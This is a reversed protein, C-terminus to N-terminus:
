KGVARQPQDDLPVFMLVLDRILSKWGNEYRQYNCTNRLIRSIRLLYNEYPTGCDSFFRIAQRLAPLVAQSRPDRRSVLLQHLIELERARALHKAPEERKGKTLRAGLTLRLSQLLPVGTQQNEHLRYMILQNQDFELKSYLLLMWAIWGDHHWPQPIPLWQARLNARVMLTAGAVVNRNLLVSAGKGARFSKQRSTTFSGLRWLQKGILRSNQDILEADSFIGGLAPDHEMMEAQRALKEPMWVDDQDSLAILDGTCLGIAKEFNKAVGLNQTNRFFRVPFSVTKGFETVIEPTADSSGDDCVVMEDPLRTQAAISALQEPLFRSGNYTCLAVSIRLKPATM